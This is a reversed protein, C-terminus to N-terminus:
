FEDALYGALTKQTTNKLNTRVKTIDNLKSKAKTMVENTLNIKLTKFDFDSKIIQSLLLLKEPDAFIKGMDQQLPTLVRNDQTKISPRSVYGLLDEKDKKQLGFQNLLESKELTSKLANTFKIANEKQLETMAKQREIADIKKEEEEQKIKEFYQEATKKLKNGDKLWDLRDAIEDEPFGERELQMRVIAEQEKDTELTKVKSVDVSSQLVKFFDSTNGGQEKFRIFAIADEDLGQFLGKLKEEAQYDIEQKQLEFFTDEDQIENEDFELTLLGKEKMESAMITFPNDSSLEEKKVEEKKIEEKKEPEEETKFFEEEKEEIIEEEKKEEKKVIEEPKDIAVEMGFFEIAEKEDWEFSKLENEM